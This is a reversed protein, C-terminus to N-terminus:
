KAALIPPELPRDSQFFDHLSRFGKPGKPRTCRSMAEIQNGSVRPLEEAYCSCFDEADLVRMCQARNPDEPVTRAAPAACALASFVLILLGLFGLARLKKKREAGAELMEAAHEERLSPTSLGTAARLAKGYKRAIAAVRRREQRNLNV